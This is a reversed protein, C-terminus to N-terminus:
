KMTEYFVWCKSVLEYDLLHVNVTKMVVPRHVM